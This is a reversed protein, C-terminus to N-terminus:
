ALTTVSWGFATDAAAASSLTVTFSGSARVVWSRAAGSDSYWTLLIRSTATATSNTIVCTTAGSAIAAIGNPKNVTANGPTGSTDTGSQTTADGITVDATGDFPVGNINRATALKTATGANGTVSTQDGTNTGSTNGIVTKQADTCYRKDTSDAIDATTADAGATVLGNADYTVKTKTAGTIATNKDLKGSLDQDGTNDGSVTKFATGDHWKFAHTTSAHYIQGEVPSSPAATPNLKLGQVLETNGASM